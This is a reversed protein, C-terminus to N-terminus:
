VTGATDYATGRRPNRPLAPLGDLGPETADDAARLLTFGNVPDSGHTERFAWGRDDRADDVYSVSVVDELGNLVREITVRQSWPCFWGAYLHYRGAEARLGSTRRAKRVLKRRVRQVPRSAALLGRCVGVRWLM